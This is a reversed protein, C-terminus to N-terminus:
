RPAIEAQERPATRCQPCLEEELERGVAWPFEQQCNACVVNLVVSAEAIPDM